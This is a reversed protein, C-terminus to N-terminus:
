AAEMSATAMHQASVDKAQVVHTDHKSVCTPMHTQATIAHPVTQVTGDGQLQSKASMKVCDSNMCAPLVELIAAGSVQVPYTRVKV